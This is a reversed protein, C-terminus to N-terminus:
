PKLEPRGCTGEAETQHHRRGVLRLRLDVKVSCVQDGRVRLSELSESQAYALIRAARATTATRTPNKGSSGQKAALLQREVQTPVTQTLSGSQAPDSKNPVPVGHATERRSTNTDWVSHALDTIWTDYNTVLIYTPGLKHAQLPPTFGSWGASHIRKLLTQSSIALSM